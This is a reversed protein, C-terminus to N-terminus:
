PRKAKAKWYAADFYDSDVVAHVCQAVFDAQEGVSPRFGSIV